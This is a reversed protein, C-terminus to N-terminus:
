HNIVDSNLYLRYIIEHKLFWVKNILQNHRIVKIIFILL